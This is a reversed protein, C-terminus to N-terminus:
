RRALHRYFFSSDVDECIFNFTDADECLVTKYPDSYMFNTGALKVKYAGREFELLPTVSGILLLLALVGAAYRDQKRSRADLLFRISCVCLLTLSPISVRMGFDAKFGIRFLPALVPVAVSAIFLPERRFRSGLVLALAGFEILEFLLLRFFATRLSFAHLLPEFRFPAESSAQNSAFYPLFIPLVAACALLNPASLCRRFFARTGRSVGQARIERALLCVALSVMCVFLGIFPFPAFPLAALGVLAYVGIEWPSSLLLLMALWAPVAQNYVWFLCTTNSSFQYTGAWWEIQNNWDDIFGAMLADMGSFMVFILLSLCAPLLTQARVLRLLFLFILVLFWVTQLFLAANAAAWCAGEGLLASAAKGVFSPILWYAIYYTLAYSTGEFRVPWPHELLDHLIANRGYHDENQYFMGGIGSFFTWVLACAVVALLAWRSLSFSDDQEGFLNAREAKPRRMASVFAALLAAAAPLAFVPRVWTLLFVISPLLLTAFAAGRLFRRSLTIM